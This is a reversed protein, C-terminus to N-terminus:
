DFKPQDVSAVTLPWPRTLCVHFRALWSRNGWWHGAIGVRVRLGPGPGPGSAATPGTPIVIFCTCIIGLARQDNVLLSWTM